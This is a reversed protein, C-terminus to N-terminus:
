TGFPKGKQEVGFRQIEKRRPKQKACSTERSEKAKRGHVSLSRMSDKGKPDLSRETVIYPTV